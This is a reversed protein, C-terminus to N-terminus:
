SGANSIAPSFMSDLLIIDLPIDHFATPVLDVLQFPYFAGVKLSEPHNKLFCDYYGGGYGLRNHAADVALGPVLILDYSGHYVDMSEPHQTGKIGMELADLSHLVRHELARNPFTKPAVVIKKASLLYQIFPKINMETSMPIYVHVSQINQKDILEVLAENIRKDYNIKFSLDLANRRQLMETRMIKKQVAIEM